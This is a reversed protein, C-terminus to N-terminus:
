QVVKGPKKMDPNSTPNPVLNLLPHVLPWPSQPRGLNLILDITATQVKRNAAM